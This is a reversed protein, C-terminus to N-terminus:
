PVCKKVTTPVMRCVTYPVKKVCTEQVNRCVTYPVQKVCTEKVMRCTTTTTTTCVNAGEQFTRGPGECDYGQGSADVYAGKLERVVTYPIQKKCVETVNRTVTYPVKTRVSAGCQWTRGPAECDYGCGNADVWAGTEKRCTTYPVKKVVTYPVKKTV